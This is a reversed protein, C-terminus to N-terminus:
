PNCQAGVAPAVIPKQIESSIMSSQINDVVKLQSLSEADGQCMFAGVDVASRGAAGARGAQPADERRGSGQPTLLVHTRRKERGTAAKALM